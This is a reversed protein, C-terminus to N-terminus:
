FKYGLTFSFQQGLRQNIMVYDKSDFKGNEDMDQYFIAKYAILDRMNLRLEMRKKLFSKTLQLDLVPRPNEWITPNYQNGVLWIRRGIYNFALSIGFDYKSDNYQLSTNIIFPSQGQLPRRESTGTLTDQVNVRSYIYALNGVISFDNLFRSKSKFLSGFSFKFELEAGGTIASPVNAYAFIRNTSGASLIKEIPNSFHKFFGTVSVVQGGSPYWEFRLDANTVKTRVLKSNGGVLAFNSYDYFTFPALERSEPRAVTQSGSLRLNMKPHFNYIINLSPLIDIVTNDLNIPAGDAFAFTNLKQRFSEIRAGWLFKLSMQKYRAPIPITNDFQVYGAMLSAAYTYTDSKRTNEQIVIANSGLHQPIFVSDIPSTSIYFVSNNLPNTYALQRANFDRTKYQLYAGAKIEHQSKKIRFPKSVDFSGSYIYDRQTSYFRSAVSTAPAAPFNIFFPLTTDGVARRYDLIRYDPIIRDLRTLGGGWDFKVKSKPLSHEGNIQSSIMNNQTYLMNYSRVEFGQDITTGTGDYGTRAIYQDNSNVNYINKLSIRNNAGNAKSLVLAMNWVAGWSVNTNYQKDRYDIIRATDAPTYDYRRVDRFSPSNNYSIAFVSGFEKRSTSKDRNAKKILNANHGMAFQFNLGPLAMRNSVKFNNNLLGAYEGLKTYQFQNQASVLQENSPFGSPLKRTGDDFGTFDLKGGQGKGFDSFTTIANMNTGLSISYYNKEPIDKTRIQIIGGAFEGSLSPMATKIVKLDSILASPFIDFAFAKRDPESSPLPAGNIFAANYRDPLGRIIVFSNDQITAGSVRKLVDATNRDPMKRIQDGSIGDFVVVSNKQEIVLASQTERDAKAEIVVANLEKNLKQLTITLSTIDGAKVTVGSVLKPQYSLYSVQIDYTGVPLTLKFAGDLDTAIGKGSSKVLVNVGILSEGTAEDIVKGSVIGNQAFGFSVSLVLLLIATFRKMINM